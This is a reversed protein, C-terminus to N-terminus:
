LVITEKCNLVKVNCYKKAEESFKDVDAKILSFTDYHMPIVLSPRIMKVAKIADDVDMTYNGGIPLLAVDISEDELLKMDLMLGTDGAHYIKNNEEGQILFGCPPGGYVIEDNITMSSSHLANIMKVKGFPFQYSGGIQMPHIRVGQKSLYHGLEPNCIVVSDYKLALEVTEGLHDGHGHTVFIYNLGHGNLDPRLTPFYPDILATFDKGELLFASHGFYTLRM